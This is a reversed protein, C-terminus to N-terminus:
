YVDNCVVVTEVVIMTAIARRMFVIGFLISVCLYEYKYLWVYLLLTHFGNSGSLCCMGICGICAREEVHPSLPLWIMRRSTVHSWSRAINRIWYLSNRISRVHHLDHNNSSGNGWSSNNNTFAEVGQRVNAMLILVIYFQFSNLDFCVLALFFICVRVCEYMCWEVGHHWVGHWISVIVSNPQLDIALNWLIARRWDCMRARESPQENMRMVQKERRCMCLMSSHSNMENRGM